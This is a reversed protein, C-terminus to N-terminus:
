EGAEDFKDLFESPREVESVWYKLKNRMLTKQMIDTLSNLMADSTSTKTMAKDITHHRVFRGNCDSLIHGHNQKLGPYGMAEDCPIEVINNGDPNFDYRIYESFARQEHSWNEKWQACGKYRKETPCEKWAKMMKLTLPLKQAIVFGTNLTVKGKSDCSANKDGNLIQKTDIPMAISTKRTIGWKNFLWELPVDLHQITADADIFVVFRYSELFESLVYPKIWTDHMGELSEARYFKYDYGHIQAYMFHNLVSATLMSGGENGTVNEWNLKTKGFVENDGDPWRTDMDVILVDKGLPERWTPTSEVKFEMGAPDVYHYSDVPHKITKYLESLQEGFSPPKAIQQTQHTASSAAHAASKAAEKIGQISGGGQHLAIFILVILTFTAIGLGILRNCSPPLM